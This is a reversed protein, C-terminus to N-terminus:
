HRALAPLQRWSARKRTSLGDRHRVRGLSPWPGAWDMGGCCHCWRGTGEKRVGGSQGGRATGGWQHGLMGRGRDMGQASLGTPRFGRYIGGSLREGGRAQVGPPGGQPGLM